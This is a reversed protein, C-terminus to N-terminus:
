PCSEGTATDFGHRFIVDCQYPKCASFQSTNGYADTATATIYRGTLSFPSTFDFSIDGTGDYHHASDQGAVATSGRPNHAFAGGAECTPSSYVEIAYTGNTARLNGTITGRSSSGVVGDIIPYNLYGNPPPNATLSYSTSYAYGDLNIEAGNAAWSAPNGYISNAAIENRYTGSDILEIGYLTNNTITNGTVYNTNAGQWFYIGAQNPEAAPPSCPAIVCLPQETIGLLNNLISNGSAGSGLVQIGNNNGGIVNGSITNNATELQVGVGNGYATSEFGDLGIINNIIFNGNSGGSSSIAIGSGAYCPPAACSGASAASDIINRSSPDTGGVSTTTTSGWLWIDIANPSLSIDGALAYLNGGFQNGWVANNQGASMNLGIYWGEFALGQVLYFASSAGYFTLGMSSGRGQGNLVICRQAIDGDLFTNRKSGPQTFGNIYLGSTTVWPLDSALNIVYPCSGMSGDTPINFEIVHTGGSANANTIAERLSGPGSDSINTVTITTAVTDDVSSEYAGLDVASGVVRPNGVLDTAPVGPANSRGVNIAPSASQLSFQPPMASSAGVFLPDTNQTGSSSGAESGFFSGTNYINNIFLATGPTWPAQELQGTRLYVDTNGNNWSINNYLSAQTSSDIHIGNGSAASVTNNTLTIGAAGITHNPPGQFNYKNCETQVFIGDGGSHAALNNDINVTVNDTCSVDVWLNSYWFENSRVTVSVGDIGVDELYMSTNQFHIGEITVSGQVSLGADVNGSGDFITNGPVLVRDACNATYGGLLKVANVEAGCQKCNTHGLWPTQSLSYTGQQVEIVTTDSASGALQLATNLTQENNVCQITYALASHSACLACAAFLWAARLMSM